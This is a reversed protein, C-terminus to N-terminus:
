GKKDSSSSSSNPKRRRICSLSKRDGRIFFEQAFCYGTPSDVRHFGYFNLQRRV